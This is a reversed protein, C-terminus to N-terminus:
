GWAKVLPATLSSLAVKQGGQEDFNDPALWTLFASKLTPWEEDIVSYWATDRNRGKSVMAQRFVGEYSFGFRKAARRSPKNLANCKWEYRRYGLSFAYDMMLYMAETAIATKQMLPSFNLHGVELCGNKPDIRLYAAIGVAKNTHQDIIVYFQPDSTLVSVRLWSRYLEFSAFPGYPLYTWMRGDKDLSNAEFLAQSDRDPNLPEVRCFRGQMHTLPPTQPAIWHSVKLGVAQGLANTEYKM